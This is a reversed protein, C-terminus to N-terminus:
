RPEPAWAPGSGASPAAILRDDCDAVIPLSLTLVGEEWEALSGTPDVDVPLSINRYVMGTFRESIWISDGPVLDAGRTARLSLVRGVLSVTVTEPDIGPLDCRVVITDGTRYADVPVYAAAGAVEAMIEEAAPPATTTDISLLRM